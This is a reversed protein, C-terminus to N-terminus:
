YKSERDPVCIGLYGSGIFRREAVWISKCYEQCHDYSKKKTLAPFKSLKEFAEVGVMKTRVGKDIADEFIQSTRWTRKLCQSSVRLREYGGMRATKPRGQDDRNLNAPPYATLIHLQIFRSM